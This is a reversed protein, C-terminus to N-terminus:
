HAEDEMVRGQVLYDQLRRGLRCDVAESEIQIRLNVASGCMVREQLSSLRLTERHLIACSSKFLDM